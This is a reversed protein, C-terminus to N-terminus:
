INLFGKAIKFSISNKRWEPFRDLQEKTKIRSSKDLKAFTYLTIPLEFWDLTKRLNRNM